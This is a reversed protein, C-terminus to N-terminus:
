GRVDRKPNYTGLMFYIYLRKAKIYEYPTYLWKNEAKFREGLLKVLKNEKIVKIKIPTIYRRNFNRNYRSDFRVVERKNGSKIRLNRIRYPLCHGRLYSEM